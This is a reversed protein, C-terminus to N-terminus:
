RHRIFLVYDNPLDVRDFASSSFQNPNFAVGTHWLLAGTAVGEETREKRLVFVDIPGFATNKAYAAFATPDAITTLKSVEAAHDAWRDLAPSATPSQGVYAYWTVFAFLREDTSVVMPRYDAGYRKAVEDSIQTAPVANPDAVAPAFRSRRLDALSEIHALDAPRGALDV